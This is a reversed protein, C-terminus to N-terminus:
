EFWYSYIDGGTLHFRLRITQGALAALTGGGTWGVTATLQDGTVPIAERRSFQPMAIGSADLVEVALSGGQRLEANVMLQTVKGITLPKTTVTGTDDGGNCLSVFGDRRWTAKAILATQKRGAADAGHTMNMAGYYLEVERSSVLWTSATYITGDDWAGAKGLPLIPDRVPRSWHRLDRSAAIQVQIPGDGTNAYIGSSYNMIDFVWPLGVYIGEYPYVPMGYIQAEIGGQAMVRFDDVHDGEVALAWRSNPAEPATWDTFNRSVSVFASRDQKGPTVSTNAMLMRQKTTAIFLRAARDYAVSSVDGYLIVPNKAYATWTLGDPSFHVCYGAKDKPKATYTMLKYRRSADADDPDYVLTGGGVMTINNEKSGKYDILGLRPKQWTIGDSSTAYCLYYEKEFSTYWMRYGSGAPQDKLVTGYIYVSKGEWPETPRLLPRTSRGPHVVRQVDVLSDLRYDDLFLERVGPEVRAVYAIQAVLSIDDWDSVGSAEASSIIAVTVHTTQDPAALSITLPQWANGPVSSASAGGIRASNQDWFELHFLAPSGSDSKMWAKATYLRGPSAVRKESRVTVGDTASKDTIELGSDDKEAGHHQKTIVSAMQASQSVTWRLPRKEPDKSRFDGNAVMNGGIKTLLDGGVDARALWPLLAAIAVAACLGDRVFDSWGNRTVDNGGHFAAKQKAIPHTFKM